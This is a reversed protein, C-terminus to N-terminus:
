EVGTSKSLLIEVPILRVSFSLLTKRGRGLIEHHPPKTSKSQCLERKDFISSFNKVRGYISSELSEM